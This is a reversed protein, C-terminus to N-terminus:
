IRYNQSEGGGTHKERVKLTLTPMFKYCGLFNTYDSEKFIESDNFMFKSLAKSVNSKGTNNEGIILVLGGFNSEINANSDKSDLSDFAANLLLSQTEKVENFDKDQTSIGINRFNSILFTRTKM